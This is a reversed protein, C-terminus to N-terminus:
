RSKLDKELLHYEIQTIYGESQAKKAADLLREPMMSDCLRIAEYVTQSPIGDYYAVKTSGPVKVIKLEPPLTRRVRKPTAIYLTSPNTPALDLLAIVSEGYLFADSGALAVALAYADNAEPVRQTLRYVGQGVRELKGRVAYQVLENNTIGAEKAQASTILGFNDAAIEFIDDFKTM